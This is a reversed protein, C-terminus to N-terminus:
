DFPLEGPEAPTAASTQCNWSHAYRARFIVDQGGEGPESREGGEGRPSPRSNATPDYGEGRPLPHVAYRSPHKEHAARQSTRIIAIRPITVEFGLKEYWEGVSKPDEVRLSLWGNIM